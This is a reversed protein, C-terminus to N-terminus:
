VELLNIIEDWPDVTFVPRTLEEDQTYPTNIKFMVVDDSYQNCFSNRDDVAYQCNILYKSKTTVFHFDQDNIFSYERRLMRHKSEMHTGKGYCWSVFVVEWGKNYLHQLVRKSSDCCTLTDYLDTKRWFDFPDINPTLFYNSLNYDLNDELSDTLYKTIGTMEGNLELWDKWECAVDHCITLDVDVAIVPKREDM